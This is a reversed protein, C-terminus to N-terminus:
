TLHGKPSVRFEEFDNATAPRIRSKDIPRAIPGDLWSHSSGRLVSAALVGLTTGGPIEYCLKNEDVVFYKM